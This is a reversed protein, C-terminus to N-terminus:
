KMILMKGTAAFDSTTLTYFYLGSAVREGVANRGDWYAARSKSEYIGAPQHGLALTRILRGDAAYIRLTVDAPESLHYPIWTEPNFPNPYNPLLVTESPVQSLDEWFASLPDTEPRLQPQQLSPAGPSRAAYYYQGTITMYLENQDRCHTRTRGWVRITNSDERRMGQYEMCCVDSAPITYNIRFTGVIEGPTDVVIAWDEWPGECSSKRSFVSRKITFPRQERAITISYTKSLGAAELRFNPRGYGGTRLVASAAGYSDTKVSTPSFRLFSSSETFRVTVDRMPRGSKSKVIATVKKSDGSTIENLIGNLSISGPIYKMPIRTTGKVTKNAVATATITNTAIENPHPTGTYQTATWTATAQGQSNTTVLTPQINGFATALSIDAGPFPSGSPTRVTITITAKQGPEVTAPSASVSIQGAGIQITIPLTTSQNTNAIAATINFTGATANGNIKLTASLQGNSNTTGLTPSITAKDSPVSLSLTKGAAPNGNETVSVTLQATSGQNLTSSGSSTRITINAGPGGGNAGGYDDASAAADAASDAGGESADTDLEMGDGNPGGDEMEADTEDISVWASTINVSTGNEYKLFGDETTYNGAPQPYLVTNAGTHSIEKARVIEFPQSVVPANFTSADVPKIIEKDPHWVQIYFAHDAWAYFAQTQGSAVKYHGTIRHGEPLIQTAPRWTSFIIFVTKTTQNTVENVEWQANALPTLTLLTLLTIIFTTKRM